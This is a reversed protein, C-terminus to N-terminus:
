SRYCMYQQVTGEWQHIQSNTLRYSTTLPTELEVPYQKTKKQISLLPKIEEQGNQSNSAM